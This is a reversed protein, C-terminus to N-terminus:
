EIVALIDKQSLILLEEDDLKFETGAYKQFLIKQGVEVDMAERTGDDLTRGPGISLITGEQPREKATDPLVIGSKTMEERPTPRVVIRDGLPKLSTATVSLTM